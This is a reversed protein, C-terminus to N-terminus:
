SAERIGTWTNAGPRQRSWRARCRPCQVVLHGQDASCMMEVCCRDPRAQELQEDASFEAVTGDDATWTLGDRDWGTNCDGCRVGSVDLDFGHLIAIHCCHRM